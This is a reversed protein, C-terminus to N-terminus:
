TGACEVVRFFKKSFLVHCARMQEKPGDSLADEVESSMEAPETLSGAENM